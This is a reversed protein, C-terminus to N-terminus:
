KLKLLEKLFSLAAFFIEFYALLFTCWTGQVKPDTQGAFNNEAFYKKILFLFLVNEIVLCARLTLKIGM